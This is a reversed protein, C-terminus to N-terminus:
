LDFEGAQVGEIFAGWGASPFALAGGQRNKTDRVLITDHTTALNTAVEVCSGSSDSRRSKFFEAEALLAGLRATPDTM